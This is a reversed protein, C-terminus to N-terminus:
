TVHVTFAVKAPARHPATLTVTGHYLGGHAYTHRGRVVYLSNVTAPGPARGTVAARSTTGDGWSILAGVSAPALGPAAVTAVQGSVLGSRGVTLQAGIAEVSWRVLTSPYFNVGAAMLRGGQPAMRRLFDNYAPSGLARRAGPSWGVEALALLRPFAMYDVASLNVLTETWVAGEVGIVSRPPVGTVLSGPDWNYAKNLDCGVPCAWTQGIGPPV